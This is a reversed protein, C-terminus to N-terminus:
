GDIQVINEEYHIDGEALPYCEGEVTDFIEVQVDGHEDLISQLKNILEQIRM